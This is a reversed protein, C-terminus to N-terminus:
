TAKRKLLLSAGVLFILIFSSAIALKSWIEGFGLNLLNIERMAQILYTFPLIASISKIAPHMSEPQFILGTLILFSFFILNSVQISEAITYTVCSILLGLSAATLASIFAISFVLWYAGLSVDFLTAMSALVIAALVLDIATFAIMKGLIMHYKKYPTVFFREFTGTMREETITTDALKLAIMIILIVIIASAYIDFYKLNKSTNKTEILEIKPVNTNDQSNFDAEITVDDITQKLQDAVPSPLSLVAIKDKLSSLSKERDKEFSSKKENILSDINSQVNERAYDAVKKEFIKAVKEKSRASIEPVTSNEIIEVSGSVYEGKEIDLIVASKLKNKEIAERLDGEKSFVELNFIKENKIEDLFESSSENEQKNFVGVHIDKPEYFAVLGLLFMLIIPQLLFIVMWSTDRLLKKLEYYAIKFM